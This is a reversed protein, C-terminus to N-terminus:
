WDAKLGDQDEKNEEVIEMRRWNKKRWWGRKITDRKINSYFPRLKDRILRDSNTEATTTVTVTVTM